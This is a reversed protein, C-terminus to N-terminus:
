LLSGPEHALALKESSLSQRLKERANGFIM